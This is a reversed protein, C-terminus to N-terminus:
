GVSITDLRERIFPATVVPKLGGRRGVPPVMPAVVADHDLEYFFVLSM